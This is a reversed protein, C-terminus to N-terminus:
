SLADWVSLGAFFVGLSVLSGIYVVTHVGAKPLVLPSHLLSLVIQVVSVLPVGITLVQNSKSMTIPVLQIPSWPWASSVFTELSPISSSGSQIVYIASYENPSHVDLDTNSYWSLSSSMGSTSQLYASSLILTIGLSFLLANARQLCPIFAPIRIFPVGYYKELEGRARVAMLQDVDEDVQLELSAELDVNSTRSERQLLPAREPNVFADAVSTVALGGPPMTNVPSGDVSSGVVFPALPPETNHFTQDTAGYLRGLKTGGDEIEIFREEEHTDNVLVDRYLAINEYGQKIAVVAEVAAWGLAVWWVRRFAPDCWTPANYVLYHPILLIPIAILRLLLSLIAHVLTSLVTSFSYHTLRCSTYICGSLSYIPTRLLYSLCWLGASVFLEPLPFPLVSPFNPTMQVPYAWTPLLALLTFSVAFTLPVFTQLVLLRAYSGLYM